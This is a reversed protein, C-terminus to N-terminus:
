RKSTSISRSVLCSHPYRSRADIETPRACVISSKLLKTKPPKRNGAHGEMMARLVSIRAQLAREETLKGKAIAERAYDMIRMDLADATGCFGGLLFLIFLSIWISIARMIRWALPTDAFTTM